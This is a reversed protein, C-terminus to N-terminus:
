VNYKASIEADKALVKEADAVRKADLKKALELQEIFFKKQIDVPTDYHYDLGIEGIAKVKSTVHKTIEEEVVDLPSSDVDMPHIGIACYVEEFMKAAKICKLSNVINDASLMILGVNKELARKIVNEIGEEYRSDYLHCHTDFIM